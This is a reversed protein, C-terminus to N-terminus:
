DHDVLELEIMVPEFSTNVFLVQQSVQGIFPNANSKFSSATSPTMTIFTLTSSENYRYAIMKQNSKNLSQTQPECRNNSTVIRNYDQRAGSQPDLYIIRYGVLGNNTTFKYQDESAISATDIVIGRVDPFTTLVGVDNIIAKIEKPKIYINYFGKKNFYMLPLQLNYMGELINDAEQNVTERRAKTLINSSLKKYELNVDDTSSMTPRYTFYIEIDDNNVNSPIRTGYTGTSAM